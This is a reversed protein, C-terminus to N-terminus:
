RMPKIPTVGAKFKGHKGAVRAAKTSQEKKGIDGLKTHFYPLLAICFRDRREACQTPDNMVQLCYDMPTLDGTYEVMTNVTTVTPKTRRPRSLEYDPKRPRGAGARYGGSAM